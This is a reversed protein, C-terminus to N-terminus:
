VSKVVPKTNMRLLFAEHEGDKAMVRLGQGKPTYCIVYRPYITIVAEPQSEAEARLQGIIEAKRQKLFERQTDTLKSFPAIKLNGSDTLSLTFGADKIKTLDTM